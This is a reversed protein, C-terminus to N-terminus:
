FCNNMSFNNKSMGVNESRAEQPEWFVSFKYKKSLFYFVVIGFQIATKYM